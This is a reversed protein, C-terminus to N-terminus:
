ACVWRISGASLAVRCDISMQIREYNLGDKHEDEAVAIICSCVQKVSLTVSM